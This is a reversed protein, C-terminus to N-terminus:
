PLSPSCLRHLHHRLRLVVEVPVVQGPAPAGQGRPWGWSEWAEWLAEWVATGVRAPDQLFLDPRGALHLCNVAAFLGCDVVQRGQSPCRLAASPITTAVAAGFGWVDPGQLLGPLVRDAEQLWRALLAHLIADIAAQDQVVQGVEHTALSDMEWM